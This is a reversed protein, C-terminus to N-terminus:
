EAPTQLSFVVEVLVALLLEETTEPDTGNRAPEPQLSASFM